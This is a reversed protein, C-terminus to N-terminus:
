PITVACVYIHTRVKAMVKASGSKLATMSGQNDVKVVTSDSSSWEDVTIGKAGSLKLKKTKEVKLKINSKLKPSLVKIKCLNIKKKGDKICLTITGKKVTKIVGNSYIGAKGKIFLTSSDFEPIDVYIMDGQIVTLQVGKKTIKYTDSATDTTSDVPNDPDVDVWDTEVYKKNDYTTTAKSFDNGESVSIEDFRESTGGFRVMDLDHCNYFAYVGISKVSVPIYVEKVHVYDGDSVTAGTAFIYAPIVTVGEEFIVKLKDSDKGANVFTSYNPYRWGEGGIVSISGKDCDKFNGNIILTELARCNAFACRGMSGHGNLTISKVSTCNNFAWAGISVNSNIIIDKLGSCAYFASDGVRNINCPIILKDFSTCEAFASEGITTISSSFEPVELSSNYGFSHNGITTLKEDFIVKKLDYCKYFSYNGIEIIEKGLILRRIRPHTGDSVSGNTAFLYDPVVTASGGFTVSFDSSDKGANLFVSNGKYDYALFDNRVSVSLNTVPAINGNITLSNLSTCDAFALSDLSINGDIVVNELGTNNRFCSYGISANGGIYLKKLGICDHFALEGLGTISKPLRVEELAWAHRFAGEDINVISDNFSVKSLRFCDYFAFKGISKVNKGFVIETVCAYLNDSFSSRTAFLYAPVVTVDDGFIVVFNSSNKGANLFISENRYDAISSLEISQKTADSLNGNIIIKELSTCNAFACRGLGTISKPLIVSKLATNNKFAADMITNITYETGEIQVKSPVEIAVATGNYAKIKATGNEVSYTYDGVVVETTAGNVIAEPQEMNDVDIIEEDLPTAFVMHGWFASMCLISIGLIMRKMFKM